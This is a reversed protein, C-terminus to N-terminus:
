YIGSVKNMAISIGIGSGCVAIGLASKDAKLANGMAYAYDPYDCSKKEEIGFDKVEYKQLSSLYNKIYVKMDYGAHDCALFIKTAM